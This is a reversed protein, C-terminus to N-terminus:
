SVFLFYGLVGVGMLFWAALFFGWRASNFFSDNVRRKPTGAEHRQRRDKVTFEAMQGPDQYHSATM